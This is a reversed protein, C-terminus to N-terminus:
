VMQLQQQQQQPARMKLSFGFVLRGLVRDIECVEVLLLRVTTITVQLCLLLMLLLIMTMLLLLLLLLLKRRLSEYKPASDRAM